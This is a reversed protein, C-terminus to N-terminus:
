ILATWKGNPGSGLVFDPLWYRSAIMRVVVHQLHLQQAAANDTVSYQVESDMGEEAMMINQTMHTQYFKTLGLVFTTMEAEPTNYHHIVGLTATWM